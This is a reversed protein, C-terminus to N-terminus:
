NFNKEDILFLSKNIICSLFVLFYTPTTEKDFMFLSFLVQSNAITLSRFFFLRDVGNDESSAIEKSM